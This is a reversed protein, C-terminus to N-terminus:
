ALRDFIACIEACEAERSYTAQFWDSWTRTDAAWRGPDHEISHATEVIKARLDGVDDQTAIVARGPLYEDPGGGTWCVNVTGSIMAESTPACMGEETNAAAFISARRYTEAIDADTMGTMSRAEWGEPLDLDGFVAGNVFEHKYDFFVVLRERPWAGYRFGADHGNRGNGSSHTRILPVDLDPFRARLLDETHESETLIGLLEPTTTFAHQEPDAVGWRDVLYGNQVFSLRRVGAPLLTRLGDGYVEPVVVIDREDFAIRGLEHDHVIRAPRDRQTLIAVHDFLKRTGGSLCDPGSPSVYFIM